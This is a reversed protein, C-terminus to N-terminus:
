GIGYRFGDGIGDGVYLLFGGIGCSGRLSARICRYRFETHFIHAGLKCGKALFHASHDRFCNGRTLSDRFRCRICDFRYRLFDLINGPLDCFRRLADDVGRGFMCRVNAFSADVGDFASAITDAASDFVGSGFSGFRYFRCRLARV